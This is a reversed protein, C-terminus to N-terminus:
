EGIGINITGTGSYPMDKEADDRDQPSNSKRAKKIKKKPMKERSVDRVITNMPKKQSMSLHYEKMLKNAKAMSPAHADMYNSPEDKFSDVNKKKTVRKPVYM